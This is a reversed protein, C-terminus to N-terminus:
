ADVQILPLDEIPTGAQVHALEEQAAVTNSVMVAAAAAAVALLTNALGNVLVATQFAELTFASGMLADAGQSILLGLLTAATWVIPARGLPNGTWHDTRSPARSARVTEFVVKYPMWVSAIPVIWWWITSQDSHVTDTRGLLTLNSHARYSWAVFSVAGMALFLFTLGELLAALGYILDTPFRTLLAAATTAIGAMAGAGLIVATFTGRNRLSTLARNMEPTLTYDPETAAILM